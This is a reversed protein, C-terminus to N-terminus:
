RNRIRFDRNIDNLMKTTTNKAVANMKDILQETSNFDGNFVNQYNVTVDRQVTKVPVDIKYNSAKAVEPMFRNPNIKGWEFLNETLAANAVADGRKLPTLIAGDSRRFIMEGGKDQTWGLQDKPIFKSGKAYAKYNYNQTKLKELAKSAEEYSNYWKTDNGYLDSVYYKSKGGSTSVGM